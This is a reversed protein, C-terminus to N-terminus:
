GPIAKQLEALTTGDIEVTKLPSAHGAVLRLANPPLGLRAALLALVAENAKGREAVANVKVKLRDGYWEIGSKAAGPIVKLQVRLM